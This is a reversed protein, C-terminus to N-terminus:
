SAGDVPVAPVRPAEFLWEDRWRMKREKAAARIRALQGHTPELTGKEWRSVTSQSAEVMRAFDTQTVRFIETRIRKLPEMPCIIIGMAM